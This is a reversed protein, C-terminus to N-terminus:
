VNSWVIDALTFIAVLGVAIALFVLISREKHRIVAILGTVLGALGAGISVFMEWTTARIFDFLGNAPHLVFDALIPIVFFALALGVSWKGPITNPLITISLDSRGICDSYDWTMGNEIHKLYIIKYLVNLQLCYFVFRCTKLCVFIDPNTSRQKPNCCGVQTMKKIM